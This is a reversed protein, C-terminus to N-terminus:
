VTDTFQYSNIIFARLRKSFSLEGHADMIHEVTGWAESKLWDHFMKENNLKLAQFLENM